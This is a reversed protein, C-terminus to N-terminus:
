QYGKISLAVLCIFELLSVSCEKEPSFINLVKKFFYSARGAIEDTFAARMAREVSKYTVCYKDAIVMYINKHANTAALSDNICLRIADKFYYFGISTIPIGASYLVKTIKLNLMENEQEESTKGQGMNVLVSEFVEETLKSETKVDTMKFLNEFEIYNKM